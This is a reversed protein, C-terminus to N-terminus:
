DSVRYGARQLVKIAEWRVERSRVISESIRQSEKNAHDLVERANDLVQQREAETM